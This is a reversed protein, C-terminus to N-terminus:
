MILYTMRAYSNELAITLPCCESERHRCSVLVHIIHDEPSSLSPTRVVSFVYHRPSYPVMYKAIIVLYDKLTVSM